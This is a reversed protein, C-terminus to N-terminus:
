PGSRIPAQVTASGSMAFTFTVPLFGPVDAPLGTVSTIPRDSGVLVNQPLDLPGPLTATGSQVSIRELRDTQPGGNIFIAHLSGQSIYVNRIHMGRVDANGGENRPLAAGPAEGQGAGCGTLALLVVFVIAAVRM